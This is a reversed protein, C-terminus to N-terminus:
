GPRMARQSRSLPPTGVRHPRGSPPRAPLPRRGPRPTRGDAPPAPARRRPRSRGGDEVEGAAAAAVASAAAARPSSTTATSRWASSCSASSSGRSGAAERAPDLGDDISRSVSASRRTRGCARREGRDEDEPVQVARERRRDLAPEGRASQQEVLREGDACRLRPQPGVRSAKRSSGPSSGRSKGRGRRDLAM